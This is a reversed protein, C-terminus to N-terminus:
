DTGTVLRFGLDRYLGPATAKLSEDFRHFRRASDRQRLSYSQITALIILEFAAALMWDADERYGCVALAKTKRLFSNLRRKDTNMVSCAGFHVVRNACRNKMMEALKSLKVWVRRSLEIGSEEGEEAGAGHFALYLLPHTKYIPQLYRDLCHELEPITAVTRHEYPVKLGKMGELMRLMPEVSSRDKQGYWQDAELCFVGKIQDQRRGKGSTNAM